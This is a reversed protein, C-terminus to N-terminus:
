SSMLAKQDLSIRHPKKSWPIAPSKQTSLRLQYSQQIAPLINGQTGTVMNAGQPIVRPGLTRVSMERYKGEVTLAKDLNGKIKYGKDWYGLSLFSSLYIFEEESSWGM